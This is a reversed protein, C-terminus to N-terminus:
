EAEIAAEVDWDIIRWDYVWQDNGFDNGKRDVNSSQFIYLQTYYLPLCVLEDNMYEALDHYADMLDDVDSTNQTEEILLDLAADEPTHSNNTASSHFRGYFENLVSAGIAGYLIDWTVSSEGDVPPTWAQAGVDGTLLRFEATIGVEALQAQIATM